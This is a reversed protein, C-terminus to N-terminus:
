RDFEQKDFFDIREATMKTLIQKIQPVNHLKTQMEFHKCGAQKYNIFYKWYQEM